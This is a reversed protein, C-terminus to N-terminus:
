INAPLEGSRQGLDEPHEIIFDVQSTLCLAALAMFNRSEIVQLHHMALWVFGWPWHLSRLPKPGHSERRKSRARSFTNCPPSMIVADGEHTRVAQTIDEWLKENSLDNEPRKAIDVERMRLPTGTQKCHKHLFHKVKSKRPQGCFLYLTRLTPKQPNKWQSDRMRGPALRQCDNIDALRSTMKMSLSDTLDLTM